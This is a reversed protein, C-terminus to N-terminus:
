KPQRLGAAVLAPNIIGKELEEIKELNKKPKCMPCLSQCFEKEFPGQDGRSGLSQDLSQCKKRVRGFAQIMYIGDIASLGTEPMCGQGHACGQGSDKKCKNTCTSM